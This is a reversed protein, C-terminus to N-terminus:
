AEDQPRLSSAGRSELAETTSPSIAVFLSRDEPVRAAHSSWQSGPNGPNAKGTHAVRARIADTGMLGDWHGRRVRRRRARLRDEVPALAALDAAGDRGVRGVPSCIRAPILLIVGSPAGAFM